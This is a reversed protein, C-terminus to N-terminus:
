EKRLAYIVNRGYLIHLVHIYFFYFDTSNLQHM